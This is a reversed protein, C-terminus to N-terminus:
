ANKEEEILNQTPKNLGFIIKRGLDVAM